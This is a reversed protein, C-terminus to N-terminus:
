HIRPKSPSESLANGAIPDVKFYAITFFVALCLDVIAFGLTTRSIGRQGFLILVAGGFTIKELVSPIMLMRYRLPDRSIILFVIQWAVAIGVFGYYFEPHTLPPPNQESFMKETFYQPVLVILGYIGAILFIRSALKM